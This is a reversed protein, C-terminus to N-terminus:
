RSPCFPAVSADARAQEAVAHLGQVLAQLDSDKLKELWLHMNSHKEKGQHLQAALDEGRPTLRIIMRRRDEVDETREVLDCQVLRDVLLSAASQSIGLVEAFHRITTNGITNLTFLGKLQAMSMDLHLLFPLAQAQLVHFIQEQTCIAERILSERNSNM